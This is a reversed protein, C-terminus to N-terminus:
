TPGLPTLGHVQIYLTGQVSWTHGAQVAEQPQCHQIVVPVMAVLILYSTICDAVPWGHPCRAPM